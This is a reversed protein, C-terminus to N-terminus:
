RSTVGSTLAADEHTAMSSPERDDPGVRGKPQWREFVAGGAAIVGLSLLVSGFADFVTHWQAGVVAVSMLLVWVTGLLLLAGRSRRGLLPHLALWLAVATACAATVNGSPFTLQGGHTEHVLPKAVLESTLFAIAAFGAYM